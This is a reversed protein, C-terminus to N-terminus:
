QQHQNPDFSADKTYLVHFVLRYYITYEHEIIQLSTRFTEEMDTHIICRGSGVRVTTEKVATTSSAGVPIDESTQSCTWSFTAVTVFTLFYSM